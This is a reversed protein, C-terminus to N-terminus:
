WLVDGGYYAILAVSKRGLEISDEGVSLDVVLVIFLSLLLFVGDSIHVVGVLVFCDVYWPNPGFSIRTHFPVLFNNGLIQARGTLFIVFFKGCLVLGVRCGWYEM